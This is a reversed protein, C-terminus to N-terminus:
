GVAARVLLNDFLGDDAERNRKRVELSAVVLAGVVGFVTPIAFILIPELNTLCRVYTAVLIVLLMVILSNRTYPTM